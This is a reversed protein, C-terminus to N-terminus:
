EPSCNDLYEAMVEFAVLAQLATTSQRTTLTWYLAAGDIHARKDELAHLADERLPPDPIAQALARWHEVERAVAPM